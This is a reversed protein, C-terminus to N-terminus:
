RIIKLYLQMFKMTLKTGFFRILFNIKKVKPNQTYSFLWNYQKLQKYYETSEEKNLYQLCAYILSLEYALFSCISEKAEKSFTRKPLVEVENDIIKVLSEINRQGLSHTISSSDGSQRYAYIYDNVFACKGCKEMVNIFWPIDESLQGVVFTLHNNVLFERKLLKMCASVPFIGSKALQCIADNHETSSGLRDPFHPWREYRGDIPYYYDCNFGVFDLETHEKIFDVLQKLANNDIWFDDSDLFVIYDGTAYKLGYNRADSLGGNSKHLSTIRADKRSFDDCLQPCNDPSGDDVLIVEIDKYTQSTISEVCQQLYLEVKYVPIVFSIKM